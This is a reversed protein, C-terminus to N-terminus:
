AEGYGDHGCAFARPELTLAGFYEMLNSAAGKEKMDDGGCLGDDGGVMDVADDAVLGVADAGGDGGGADLEDKLGFLAAGAV